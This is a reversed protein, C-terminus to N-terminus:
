IKESEKREKKAEKEHEKQAQKDKKAKAAHARFMRDEKLKKLQRKGAGSTADMLPNVTEGDEPAGKFLFGDSSVIKRNTHREFYFIFCSRIVAVAPIAFLMGVLSGLVGGMAAGIASGVMMAILTLAPHVDVSSQMIKPSIFTYVFQQIIITGVIAILATLPGVFIASIAAIAGGIWPGVIPIINMIGTIVGLAPANPIKIIAFLIGCCLGIIFCQILTGKIYGGMIRTFTIHLFEASEVFKPSMVRSTEAGIAPLDMLIWFAIVLAFGIAVFSNAVTTGFGMVATAAGSAISTSWDTLSKEASKVFNQVTENDLWHGYNQYMGDAWSRITEVYVPINSFIDAFQTNLGFVPSFMLFGIAGIVVIMILYSITTGLVRNIRHEELTNVIGRLCFVIIVTWILMSVPLALIQMLYILVGTLVCCGIISWVLFFAHSVKANKETESSAVISRASQKLRSFRRTQAPTDTSQESTKEVHDKTTTADPTPSANSTSATSAPSADDTAAGNVAADAMNKIAYDYREAKLGPDLPEITVKHPSDNSPNSLHDQM